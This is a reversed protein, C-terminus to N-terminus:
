GNQWPARQHIESHIKGAAELGKVGWGRWDHNGPLFIPRGKFHELTELQSDIRFEAIKRAASDEAPPMGYEYINDGLFLASSNAPEGALKTKLYELVPARSEPSDNGADGILYMTHKLELAPDPSVSQWQAGEKSFRTKYSACSSVGAVVMASTLLRLLHRNM